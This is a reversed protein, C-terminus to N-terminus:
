ELIIRADVAKAGKEYVMVPNLDLEKIETHAMVLRSTQAIITALVHTDCPPRNRYGKLVPYAALESIMLEAEQKTVPAIRFVVDKLIEVFVGGLGFMLTPGFQSDKIAGVIVETSAPAMEEVLIGSVKAEPTHREVNALITGYARRVDKATKLGLVVGGVDTKHVIDPSVIKLAVPFGMKEASEVAERENAAVKFEAVPIGYEQCITKAEPELLSVRGERRAATLIESTRTM